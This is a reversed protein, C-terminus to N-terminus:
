TKTSQDPSRLAFRVLRADRNSGKIQTRVLRGVCVFSVSVVAILPKLVPGVPPLESILRSHFFLILSTQLLMNDSEVADHATSTRRM